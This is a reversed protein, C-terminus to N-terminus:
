FKKEIYHKLKRMKKMPLSSNNLANNRMIEIKYADFFYAQKKFYNEGNNLLQTHYLQIVEKLDPRMDFTYKTHLSIKNPNTTKYSSFHFFILSDKDNVIYTENKKNLTREHLNWPAMNYGRNKEVFVGEFFVPAFNIWKQDFFLHDELRAYGQYLLKDKWWNLFRLTEESRKIAIFGLNFIGTALFSTEQPVNPNNDSPTLIHPTIVMNYNDLTKYLDMLPQFVLIDPDFYVIKDIDNETKLIHDFIYPKVSTNLEVVNYRLVMGQFDTVPVQEIEILPFPVRNRIEERGELRDVLYIRFEMDPNTGQLSKGLTIAQALYNASCITFVLTNKPTM